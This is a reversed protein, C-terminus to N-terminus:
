PSPPETTISFTAPRAAGVQLILSGREPLYQHPPEIAIPQGDIQVTPNRAARTRVGHVVVYSPRPSWPRVKLLISVPTDEITEVAGAAHV